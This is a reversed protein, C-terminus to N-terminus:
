RLSRPSCSSPPGTCFVGSGDPRTSFFSTVVLYLTPPLILILLIAALVVVLPSLRWRERWSRTRGAWMAAGTEHLVAM